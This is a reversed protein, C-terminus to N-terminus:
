NTIRDQLSYPNQKKHISTLRDVQNVGIFELVFKYAKSQGVIDTYNLTLYQQHGLYRILRGRIADRAHVYKKFADPNVAIRHAKKQVQQENNVIQYENSLKAIEQSTYAHLAAPRHLLIKKIDTNKILSFLVLNNQGYFM